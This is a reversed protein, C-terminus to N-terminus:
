CEQPFGKSTFFWSSHCQRFYDGEFWFYDEDDEDGHAAIAPCFADESEYTLDCTLAQANPAKIHGRCLPCKTSKSTTKKCSRHWDSVCDRHYTNGCATHIITQESPTQPEQWISCEDGHVRPGVGVVCKDFVEPLQPSSM